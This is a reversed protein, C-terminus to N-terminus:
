EGALVRMKAAEVASEWGLERAIQGGLLEFMMKVEPNNNVLFSINNGASQAIAAKQLIPTQEYIRFGPGSNWFQSSQQRLYDLARKEYNQFGRQSVKSPVIGLLRLQPNLERQYESFVELTNLTAEISLNDLITPVLLHTSACAANVVATGPRPPADIIMVDFSNQFIDSSLHKHLNYRIEQSMGSYWRLLMCNEADNLEYFAPFLRCHHFLGGLRESQNLVEEASKNDFLLSNASLDPHSVQMANMVMDTLTGQYDFDILLVKKGISDFYAALNAAVTTKGVGGKFNAVTIIPKSKTMKRTHNGLDYLPNKRWVNRVSRVAEHQEELVLGLRDARKKEKGHKIALSTNEQKLAEAKADDTRNRFWRGVSFGGGFIAIVSAIISFQVKVNNLDVADLFEMVGGLLM